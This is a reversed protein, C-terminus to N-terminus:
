SNIIINIIAVIVLFSWPYFWWKGFREEVQNVHYGQSNLSTMGMECISNPHSSFRCIFHAQTKCIGAETHASPLVTNRTFVNEFHSLDKGLVLERLFGDHLARMDTSNQACSKVSRHTCSLSSQIYTDVRWLQSWQKLLPFSLTTGGWHHWAENPIIVSTVLCGKDSSVQQQPRAPCHVGQPEMAQQQSSNAGGM